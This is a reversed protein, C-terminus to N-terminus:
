AEGRVRDLVWCGRVHAALQRCHDLIVASDCGAEEFAAALVRLRDFAGEEHITQALARVRPSLWCPDLRAPMFPNGIIERLLAAQARALADKAQDYAGYYAADTERDDLSVAWAPDSEFLQTAAAWGAARQAHYCVQGAAEGLDGAQATAWAAWGADRASPEDSSAEAASAEHLARELEANSALGQAYREAVQVACRVRDDALLHWISRCAACAFLRLKRASVKGRLGELMLAPDACVLWEAATMTLSGM